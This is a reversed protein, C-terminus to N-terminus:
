INKTFKQKKLPIGLYLSSRKCPSSIKGMSSGNFICLLNFKNKLDYAYKLIGEWLNRYSFFSLGTFDIMMKKGEHVIFDATVPIRGCRCEVDIKHFRHISEVFNLMNFQEIFNIAKEKEMFGDIFARQKIVSSEISLKRGDKHEDIVETLGDQSAITLFGLRNM